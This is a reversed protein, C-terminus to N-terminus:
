PCWLSLFRYCNKFNYIPIHDLNFVSGVMGGLPSLDRVPGFHEKGTRSISVSLGLLRLDLASDITYGELVEEETIQRLVKENSQNSHFPLFLNRKGNRGSIDVLRYTLPPCRASVIWCPAYVRIMKAVIDEKDHNQELIVQM